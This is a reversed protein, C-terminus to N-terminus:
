LKIKVRQNGSSNKKLCNLKRINPFFLCYVVNVKRPVTKKVAAVPKKFQSHADKAAYVTRMYKKKFSEMM